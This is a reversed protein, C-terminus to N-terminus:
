SVNAPQERQKRPLHKTMTVVNGKENYVVEDMVGRIIHVGFGGPRKGEGLRREMHKIPDISPDPLERHLFGSGEDEIRFVVRDDTVEYSLRVRKSRDERNGWEIANRGIEEIALRLDERMESTLRSRLLLETFRRFRLVYEIDSVAHLEVRNEGDTRLDFDGRQQEFSASVILARKVVARLQPVEFPKLIYDWAGRALCDLIYEDGAMATLVVTPLWPSETRVRDLLEVGDLNPMILDTLLVDYETEHLKRLAEAGDAATDVEYAEETNTLAHRIVERMAREDEAV